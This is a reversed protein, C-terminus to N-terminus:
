SVTIRRPKTEERKDLTITLVGDSLKADCKQDSVTSPLTFSRQYRNHRRERLLWEGKKQANEAREETREASIMLNHNEL